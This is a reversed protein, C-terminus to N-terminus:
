ALAERLAGCVRDVARRGITTGTMQVFAHIAGEVREAEVPVGAASLAAAYAEGEDRLPDYEATIVLAPPAGALDGRRLPSVSPSAPDIGTGELYHHGFFRMMEATLLYGEGNTRLSPFREADGVLDTVPYLLVQLRLPPLAADRRCRDAWHLAALAALNGGASDGGVALRSADVGLEGARAVVDALAAEVDQVAAPAPHEPALRYDVSVVVVGAGVALERCLADHTDLSGIVFGGGHLFLLGPADGDPLERPRYRRAPRPGAGGAVEIEDVEVDAPGEGFAACLLAFGQRAADPGAVMPPPSEAAALLDLVPQLEADVPM